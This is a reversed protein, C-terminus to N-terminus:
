LWAGSNSTCAKVVSKFVAAGRRLILLILMDRKRERARDTHTHTHKMVKKKNVTM